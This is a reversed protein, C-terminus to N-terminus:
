VSVSLCTISLCVSLCPDSLVLRFLVPCSVILCCLILCSSVLCSLVCLCVSCLSLLLCLYLSRSLSLSFLHLSLSLSFCRPPCVSVSLSPPRHLMDPLFTSLFLSLSLALPHLYMAAVFVVFSFHHYISSLIYKRPHQAILPLSLYWFILWLCSLCLYRLSFLLSALRSVFICLSHFAYPSISPPLFM